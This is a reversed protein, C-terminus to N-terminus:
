KAMWRASNGTSVTREMIKRSCLNQSTKLMYRRSEQRNEKSSKWSRRKKKRGKMSIDPPKTTAAVKESWLMKMMDYNELGM